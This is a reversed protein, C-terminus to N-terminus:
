ACRRTAAPVAEQSQEANELLRRALEAHHRHGTRYAIIEADVECGTLALDGIVDLVKHRVCEDAFRLENDIPGTPGFILLDLPTVRLGVGQAVMARAVEEVIFTRCPALEHRFSSPNVDVQYVQRGIAAHHEYNLDFTVSLGASRAPRAEIWCQEDGVRTVRDVRLQRVPADQEITGATDIAEVFPLASGDVGPMEAANVWVDCNDVRLGALAALIHEVMEVRVGRWELSTRRPMDLRLAPSVPVRVPTDLDSRVFAVGSDVPAPRFDVQVDRGSFYGFGEVSASRRVTRQCRAVSM